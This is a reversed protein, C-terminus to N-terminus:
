GARRPRAPSASSLGRGKLKAIEGVISGTAGATGSVVVTDGEGPRGVDLLRSYATMGTIGFISLAVTPVIGEPLVADLARGRRRARPGAIRDDRIRPRGRFYRDRDSSVVEAVAGSRIVEDIQIPPLYGPADNMWTRITPDISLYRNLLM